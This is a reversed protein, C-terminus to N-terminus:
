QLKYFSRIKMILVAPAIFYIGINLLIIAIGYTLMESESDIDVYQLLTLSTLLPTLTLKVAEKFALNEREYDAITPSFSYYFQNFGTMFISGSETQLVANDRIERLLQVQPALESGYSATAILCGGIRAPPEPEPPPAERGQIIVQRYIGNDAFDINQKKGDIEIKFNEVVSDFANIEYRFFDITNVYIISYNSELNTFHLQIIKFTVTEEDYKVEQTSTLLHGFRGDENELLHNTIFDSKEGGKISFFSNPDIVFNPALMESTREESSVFIQPLFGSTEVAKAVSHNLSNAEVKLRLLDKSTDIADWRYPLNFTVGYKDSIYQSVIGGGERIPRTISDLREPPESATNVFPIVITELIKAKSADIPADNGDTELKAIQDLNYFSYTGPVLRGFATYQTDLFHSETIVIFFQSGATDVGQQRAMSVIGRDHKITNFENNIHYDPGGQGWTARDSEPDKTNPDGAQIVFTPVIRHFIMGEYYGSEILKLFQRVHNPADEPFLEIMFNGEQTRIIVGKGRMEDIADELEDEPIEDLYLASASGVFGSMLILTVGLLQFNMSTNKILNM